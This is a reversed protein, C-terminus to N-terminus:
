KEPVRTQETGSRKRRDQLRELTYHPEDRAKKKRTERGPRCKSRDARKTKQTLSIEGETKNKKRDRGEL